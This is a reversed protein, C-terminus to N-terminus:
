EKVKVNEIIIVPVTHSVKNDDKIASSGITGRVIIKENEHLDYAKTYEGIIGVVKSDAACCTMVIRGIIFQNKNLYSEKCVFGDLELHRGIYKEPSLRIDELVMPNVENIILIEKKNNEGEISSYDFEHEYLSKIDINSAKSERLEKNLENHKFTDQKYISIGGLVLTLIIPVLKIKLKSSGVWTFINQFQFFAIISIMLITFYCYKIMSKGIYFDIKSTYMLYIISLDLLILVIFWLFEDFNFRKL